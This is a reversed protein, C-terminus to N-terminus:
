YGDGSKSPVSSVAPASPPLSVAGGPASSAAPFGAGSPSTCATVVIALGVAAALSHIRLRRLTLRM